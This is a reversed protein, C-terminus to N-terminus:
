VVYTTRAFLQKQRRIQPRTLPRSFPFLIRPGGRKWVGGPLPKSLIGGNKQRAYKTKSQPRNGGGGGLQLLPRKSNEFGNSTCMQPVAFPLVYVYLFFCHYCDHCSSVRGNHLDHSFLFPSFLNRKERCGTFAFFIPFYFLLPSSFHGDHGEM